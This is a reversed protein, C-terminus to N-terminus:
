EHHKAREKLEDLLELELMVDKRQLILHRVVAKATPEEKEIRRIQQRLAWEEKTREEIMEELAQRLQGM